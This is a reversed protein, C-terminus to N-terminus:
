STIGAPLSPANSLGISTTTPFKLLVLKRRLQTAPSSPGTSFAHRVDLAYGNAIM